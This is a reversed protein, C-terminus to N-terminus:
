YSNEAMLKQYCAHAVFADGLANHRALGHFSENNKGLAFHFRDLDTALGKVLFLTAIDRVMYHINSPLNLAGGFLECFLVWDYAPVDAWIEISSFQLLWKRLSKVINEKSGRFHQGHPYFSKIAAFDLDLYPVVNKQHWEGLSTTDITSFEAYFWQNEESVLAISLLDAHQSLETFETDLFLLPM